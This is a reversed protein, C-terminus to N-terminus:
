CQNDNWHEIAATLYYILKNDINPSNIILKSQILNNIILKDNINQQIHM